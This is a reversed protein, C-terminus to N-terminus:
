KPRYMSRVELWKRMFIGKCHVPSAFNHGNKLLFWLLPLYLLQWLNWHSSRQEDTLILFLILLQNEQFYEGPVLSLYFSVSRWVSSNIVNFEIFCTSIGKVLLKEENESAGDVYWNTANPYLYTFRLAEVRWFCGAEFLYFQELKQTRLDVTEHGDKWETQLGEGVCGPCAPWVTQLSVTTLPLCLPLGSDWFREFLNYTLSLFSWSFLPFLM